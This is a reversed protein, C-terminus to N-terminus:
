QYGPNEVLNPNNVTRTLTIPFYYNYDYFTPSSIANDIKNVLVIKYKKEGAAYSNYDLTYYVGTFDRTLDTVATRWRRLDWYRHNEFALEVKREHRIKTRDISSLASIGARARIQNVANLADAEKGLEFAAEAYNLLIEGYRFVIWDQGSAAWAAAEAVNDNAENLYKLVGFSTGIGTGSGKVSVGKARVGEYADSLETTGDPKLVGWHLDLTSGKWPTEQTYITAFFRPDKDKYLDDISWLGQQIAARDLTGPRGDIYEFEEVMELYPATENGGDWGHPLPCQFFDVGWANGGSMASVTNYPRVLITEVNGEDLFIKRFNMAKDADQNYLQHKGSKIIQDAADYTKQYYGNAQDASFGLLGNLQVKGFQAISGAFLSARCKLALAAMNSPRGTETASPDLLDNVIDDMESIIFDYVEKESNRKPYMEDEPDDMLQVKTIIPVGGYRKVMSFYNFARLFRAEAMRVKKLENSLPTQPVNEIFTNIERNQTYAWWELLGGGIRLNGFKYSYGVGSWNTRAEDALCWTTFPQFFTSLWDSNDPNNDSTLVTMRAYLHVLYAETLAADNWVANDSIKDLPVKDLVDSCSTWVIMNIFVIIFINTLKKM